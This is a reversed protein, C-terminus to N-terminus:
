HWQILKELNKSINKSKIKGFLNLIKDMKHILNEKHIKNTKHQSILLVKPYKKIM